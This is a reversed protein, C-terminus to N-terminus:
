SAKEGKWMEYIIYGIWALPLVAALAGLGTFDAIDGDNIIASAVGMVVPVLIIGILLKMFKQFTAGM